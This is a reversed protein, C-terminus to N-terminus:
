HASVDDVLTDTTDAADGDDHSAITLTYSHGATIAHSVELWTTSTKCTKPLLTATTGATNDKLTATAWATATTDPCTPKYWFSLGTAGAAATFTQSVDSDGSTATTKGLRACHTGGHCGSVAITESVGKTTWGAFTGTEFGGNAVGGGVKVLTVKVTATHSGTTGKGTITLTYTGAAATSSAKVSMTSTGGSTVTAPSFSVTVGTPAGTASLAVSEPAGATDAVAIVDSAAAGGDDVDLATSKPTVSFNSAVAPGTTVCANQSNSWLQQVTYTNGDATKITDQQANCIDGIEGNNQDYWALPPGNTQALGVECDTITEGMEHSAVSTYNGFPSAATGCGTDCGSGAEMDPHVGYYIEGYSGVKAITGHYACFGGAQCSPTGQMTIGMGNPFFLAYYTNNNGASDKTPAPLHGATIQAALEAQIASDDVTTGTASSSPTIQVMKLFSGHGIHQNTKTGNFSHTATNYDGDMWDVYASNLIQQYFSAMNPATTSTVQPLYTGKGWIVGVVQMNSVVRGGYYALQAGAPGPTPAGENKPASPDHWKMVHGGTGPVFDLGESQAGLPEGGAGGAPAASCGQLAALLSLSSFAFLGSVSSLLRASRKM